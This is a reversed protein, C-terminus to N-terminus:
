DSLTAPEVVLTLGDQRLVRVSAGPEPSSGDETRATWEEGSAYVVGLPRLTTRVEAVTGAPVLPGTTGILLAGRRWRVVVSLVLLVYAATAATLGVIIRPDVSIAPAAPNGPATYLASAGLAFCAIGAITLLGHSVVSHELIFLIVALVILLVGAVNLPLSGFGVFALVIAIGGLIGTVFNPSSLEFLLGYFGLTFLVFAINPDSVLHLFGQAPNMGLEVPVAGATRITTTQGRVTTTRGDVFAIVAEISGAIGDIAHQALAESAPSSRANRVTQEAWDANRGRTEAISRISAVSDNLVKQGLAGPIDEGQGGVPTAAGINTGPAMLAVNAALTIFTGASAARAGSPAVWVIVPLPAELLTTVIRSTAELSGGPTNLRIVAAAAGDRAATAVGEELYGALVSDVIGTAPLVVVSPAGTTQPTAGSAGSPSAAGTTAGGCASAVFGLLGLLLPAALAFRAVRRPV